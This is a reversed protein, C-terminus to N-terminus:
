ELNGKRDEWRYLLVLFLLTLALLCVLYFLSLPLGLIIPRIKSFFAYVPWIMAVGILVFVGTVARYILKQSRSLDSSFFRPLNTM